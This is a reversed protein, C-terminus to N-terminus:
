MTQNAQIEQLLILSMPLMQIVFPLFVNFTNINQLQNLTFTKIQPKVSFDINEENAEIKESNNECNWFLFTIGFFLIGLKIYFKTRKKTM